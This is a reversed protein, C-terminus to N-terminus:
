LAQLVRAPAGDAVAAWPVQAKVDPSLLHNELVAGLPARGDVLLVPVVLLISHNNVNERPFAHFSHHLFVIFIQVQTLTVSFGALQPSKVADAGHIFPSPWGRFSCLLTATAAWGLPVAAARATWSAPRKRTHPPSLLFALEM